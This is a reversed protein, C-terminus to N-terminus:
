GIIMVVKSIVMGSFVIFLITSLRGFRIRLGAIKLGKNEIPETLELFVLLAILVLSFILGVNVANKNLFSSDYFAISSISMSSSMMSTSFSAFSVFSSWVQPPYAPVSISKEFEEKDSSAKVHFTLREGLGPPEPHIYILQETSKPSLFAMGMTVLEGNAYLHYNLLEENQNPNNLNLSVLIPLNEKSVSPLVTISVPESKSGQSLLISGLFLITICVLAISFKLKRDRRNTRSIDWM